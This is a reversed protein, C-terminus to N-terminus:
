VLDGRTWIEGYSWVLAGADNLTGSYLKGEFQASLRVGNETEVRVHSKKEEGKM